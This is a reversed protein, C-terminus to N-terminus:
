DEADKFWGSEPGDADALTNGLVRLLLESAKLRERVSVSGDLVIGTWFRGIDEVKMLGPEPGPPFDREALSKEIHEKLRKRLAYGSGASYGARRAAEQARETGIYEEVFRKEKESLARRNKM